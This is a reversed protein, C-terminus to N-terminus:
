KEKEYVLTLYLDNENFIKKFGFLNLFRLYPEIKKRKKYVPAYFTDFPMDKLKNTFADYMATTQVANADTFCYLLEATKTTQPKIIFAAGAKNKHRFVFSHRTNQQLVRSIQELFATPSNHPSVGFSSQASIALKLIDPIDTLYLRTVEFSDIKIKSKPDM